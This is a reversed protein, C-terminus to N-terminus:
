CFIINPVESETRLYVFLLVNHLKKSPRQQDIKGLFKLHQISLINFASENPYVFMCTVVHLRFSVVLILIIIM